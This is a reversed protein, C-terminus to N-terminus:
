YFYERGSKSGCEGEKKRGKKRGRKREKEKKLTDWALRLASGEQRLRLTKLATIVIHVLM